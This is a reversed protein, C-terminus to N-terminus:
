TCEMYGMSDYGLIGDGKSSTKGLMSRMLIFFDSAHANSKQIKGRVLSWVNRAFPCEWLIHNM